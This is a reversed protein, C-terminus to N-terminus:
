ARAIDEIALIVGTPDTRSPIKQVKFRWSELTAQLEADVHAGKPFLARGAPALHRAALPLLRSLPALARASVVDAKMPALDEARRAHITPAVGAAQAAVALFACKRRDSEVLCVQLQPNQEKALIAIILGPFGGGTGLDVWHGAEPPAMAFLQASDEIHRCWVESVTAQSVLNIRSNWTTLLTCFAELRGRTERSVDLM